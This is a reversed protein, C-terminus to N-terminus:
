RLCKKRNDNWIEKEGREKRKKFAGNVRAAKQTDYGQDMTPTLPWKVVM